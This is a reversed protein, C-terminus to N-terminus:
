RVVLGQTTVVIWDGGYSRIKVVNGSNPISDGEKVEVVGSVTNVWAVGRSVGKLNVGEIIVPKLPPVIDDPLRKTPEAVLSVDPSSLSGRAGSSSSNIRDALSAIQRKLGEVETQLSLFKLEFAHLYGSQSSTAEKQEGIGSRGRGGVLDDDASVSPITSPPNQRQADQMLGGNPLVILQNEIPPQNMASPMGLATQGHLPMPNIQAQGSGIPQGNPVLPGNAMVPATPMPLTNSQVPINQDIPRAFQSPLAPNAPMQNGVVPQSHGPLKNPFTESSSPSPTKAQQQPVPTSSLMPSLISYGFYGFVGVGLVAAIPLAYKMLSPRSADGETKTSAPRDGVEENEGEFSKEENEGFPDDDEMTEAHGSVDNEDRFEDSEDAFPDDDHDEITAAQVPRTSGVPRESTIDAFEDDVNGALTNPKSPDPMDEFEFSGDDFGFDNADDIDKGNASTGGFGAFVDDDSSKKKNDGSGADDGFNIKSFDYEADFDSNKEDTPM